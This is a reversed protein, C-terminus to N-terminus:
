GACGAEWSRNRVPFCAVVARYVRKVSFFLPRIKLVVRLRARARACVRVVDGARSTLVHACAASEFPSFLLLPSLARLRLDVDPVRLGIVRRLGCARASEFFRPSRVGAVADARGRSSDDDDPVPPPPL